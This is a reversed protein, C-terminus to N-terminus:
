IRKSMEFERLPQDVVDGTRIFGHRLYLAEAHANGEAVWLLVQGFGAAKAWQLVAIVLHDGVGHGRSAPEVWLSTLSATGSYTSEGGAATGVVQGDTM